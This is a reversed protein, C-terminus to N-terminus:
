EKIKIVMAKARASYEPSYACQVTCTGTQYTGARDIYYENEIVQKGKALRDFYYNTTYDKPAIYYGWHYGSLQSVPELCAARKDAVQVFDYDREAEITLRITVKDGVKLEKDANLIERTVKIGSEADSVETSPQMFQAYLAGWSTGHSTKEATFTSNKLNGDDHIVTKVYGLGATSQPTEIVKGNLKLVTPEKKALIGARGNLFAYIANVSSIPTDWAQTRKEQLLWRQMEEIFTEDENSISGQGATKGVLQLAEIVATQTPIRYNCWSYGARPTDYYRGKEETYVTYEKLSKLYELAKETEGDRALVVAMLAKSYISETRRKTELYNMLYEKAEKEASSLKIGSIANIYVWQLAHYDYIYVPKNERELKKMEKVEKVVIKGLYKNADAILSRTQADKGALLNLRTMFELVEATMCPSGSMGKWWSFSGDSNQLKRLGEIAESLRYNLTNEDFFSVLAKRQETERQADAVWPTEDLVLNKLEQNKELASQLPSDKEDMTQWQRFTQEVTPCQSLIFKGLSNAYYAAALSIANADNISGVFPLAQVMLWEPSNTYEVTLRAQQSKTISQPILTSVAIEKTGPTNQTFPYTNTVLEKNPLVALYHQEGDSFKAGEAIIRCIYLSQSNDAAFKSTAVNFTVNGTQDPKVTFPVKQEYVVKETEPELLLLRATGKAVLKSTNVIRSGITAEDGERIFRPMNPMVMIDKKAVAEDVLMGNNMDTDHALGMFRWTTVSEPLTFKLAVRGNADTELTPYFFATENLNERMQAADQKAQKEQPAASADMSDEAAMQATAAVNFDMNSTMAREEMVMPVAAKSMLVRGRGMGGRTYYYNGYDGLNAADCFHSFKWGETEFFQMKGVGSVGMSEFTKYMWRTNPLNQYLGLSIGWHHADLQDLSKDYLTALLQAKAPKGDPRTIQLTWTEKQGPVLRDRFTTWKLNLRKDPLPKNITSRHTYVKGNKVWAYTLLLGSGYAEKFSYDIRKISNSVVFSGHDIEKNESFVSYYVTVDEESSGVLVTVPKSGFEEGSQYFWDPTNVPPQKDDISFIVFSHKLSDEGCTAKLLHRGSSLRAFGYKADKAPIATNAKVTFPQGGDITYTVEGEIEKGAANRRTFKYEGLEGKVIKAPMDLSLATPRTGLPLVHSGHHSEGAVDTVEADIHFNFFRVDNKESSSVELPVKVEFTGDAATVTEDDAIQKVNDDSRWWWLAERRTVTTKVKAGQVPVGAYSMAKGKVTVVDGAKYAIDVDEFTVEYTPRKYEEVRIGTYARSGNARLSFMGTLGKAPLTFDASASGYSDTTLQQESVKKNNADYLALTIGENAVAKTELGKKNVFSVVSAHVQQGPRYIKRDTYINVVKNESRPENYDYSSWGASIMPMASDADTYARYSAVMRDGNWECVGDQGAKKKVTAEGKKADRLAFEMNAGGVPKGTLADVVIYRIENNPLNESIVKLNSVRYVLTDADITKEGTTFEVNYLGLPLQPIELTDKVIDYPKLQAYSRTQTDVTKKTKADFVRMTLFGINRIDSVTVRCTQSLTSLSREAHVNYSPRTLEAQVNRFYNANTYGPWTELAHAAFNMQREASGYRMRGLKKEALWGCEPLDQYTRILSDIDSEVEYATLMAALRNGQEDYLKHMIRYAEHYGNDAAHYGIVSLMDHNFMRSDIGKEVFPEYDNTKTSALLLPKSLSKELCATGKMYDEDGYSSQSHYVRGLVANLVAAVVPQTNEYRLVQQELDRIIHDLSDPSVELQVQAYQLEAKLLQGYDEGKKAKDVIKQLAEMQTKPLDKEEAQRVAEWLKNYNQGFVMVM